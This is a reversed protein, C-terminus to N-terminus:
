KLSKRNQISYSLIEKVPNDLVPILVLVWAGTLLTFMHM